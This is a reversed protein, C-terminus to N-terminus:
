TCIKTDCGFRTRYGLPNLDSETFYEEKYTDKPPILVVIKHSLFAKEIAEVELKRLFFSSEIANPLSLTENTIILPTEQPILVNETYLEFRIFM